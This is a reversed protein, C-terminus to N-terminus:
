IKYGEKKLEAVPVFLPEPLNNWDFWEWCECKDPEMIRVEGSDYDAIIYISISHKNEDLFINNTYTGKRLNKITIGVEELIERRACDEVSEMFELKGGPISWTGGGHNGKRKGLLVKDDKLIIVGVGVVVYVM